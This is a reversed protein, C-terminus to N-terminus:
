WRRRMPRGATITVTGDARTYEVANTLINDFVQRLRFADAVCDLDEELDLKLTM